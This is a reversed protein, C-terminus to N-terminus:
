CNKLSKPFIRTGVIQWNPRLQNEVDKSCEACVLRESNQFRFYTRKDIEYPQIRLCMPCREEQM